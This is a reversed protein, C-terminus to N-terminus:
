FSMLIVPKADRVFKLNEERRSYDASKLIGKISHSMRTLRKRPIPSVSRPHDFREWLLFLAKYPLYTNLLYRTPKKNIGYISLYRSWCKPNELFAAGREFNWCVLMNKPAPPPHNKNISFIDESIFQNSFILKM